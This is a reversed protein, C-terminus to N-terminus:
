PRPLAGGSLTSRMLIGDAWYEGTEGSPLLDYTHGLSDRVVEITTITVGEVQDGVKLGGIPRGDGIQHPASATIERGDALVVHVLESGPADLRSVTRLVVADVPRGGPAASWVHMGVKIRSVEVSGTPTSVHSNGALCIPCAGMGSGKRVDHVHGFLDVKGLMENRLAESPGPGPFIEFDYEGGGWQLRVAELKL